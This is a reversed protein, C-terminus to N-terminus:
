ILSQTYQLDGRYDLICHLRDTSGDNKVWHPHYHNNIEWLEGVNMHVVEDGIGFHVDKNTQLPLHIRSDVKLSSVDDEEAKSADTHRAVEKGAPLNVIVFRLIKGNSKYISQIQKEIKLIEDEYISYWESKTGVNRSYQEDFLIPLTTTSSHVPYTEQRFRHKNWDNETQNSVINILNTTDYNGINKYLGKM